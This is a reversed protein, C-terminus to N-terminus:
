DSNPLSCDLNSVIASAGYEAVAKAISKCGLDPNDLLHLLEIDGLALVGQLDKIGTRNLNLRQLRPLRALLETSELPNGSLDLEELEHMAELGQLASIRNNDVFLQHLSSTADLGSLESIENGGADLVLLGRLGAVAALSSIRNNRVSM